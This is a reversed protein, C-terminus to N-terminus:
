SDVHQHRKKFRKGAYSAVWWQALGAAIILLTLPWTGQWAPTTFDFFDRAFGIGFSLSAILVVLLVYVLRAIRSLRTPVIDFLRPVLFVLYVGFLTAILVVATSVGSPDDPHIMRLFFYSLTVTLGTIIAIPAVAQLTDKWYHKPSVHRRPIPSVLTWMITPMTVLFINMFTIHRPEFPYVIGLTLTLGLLVVGYILKHYFLASIVEIAQIIRNGLRIGIPLSNFSNNMLVIDAVRRTASAGAFMAIGLDAKKIALADNVGDGVMGTYNGQARFTDIIREKQEPLVRAFITNDVIAQDWAEGDLEALEAGTIVKDAGSIGVREAVYRVTQPNDGSIVRISVNRSQLYKVTKEVGVRLENTLRIIGLARGSREPLDKIDHVPDFEAVLLVRNGDTTLQDIRAQQEPSLRALRELFEPAGMLLTHTRKGIRATVGSMKRESSFSLVDKVTYESISPNAAIIADGTANGKSTERAVIGILEHVHTDKADFLEVGEYVVTDSTLTGTKDVCLVQLLAMAEIAGLKQPLVKAQVLRLSGFALLLTSALLLGEPVITVAGATITKFITIWDLGVIVYVTVILAALVLAGYTLWNIAHNIARQLPTPRPTYRKLTATMLGVKTESGVAVVRASASGAMVVSAAYVRESARKEVAASEGTLMSEDLEIDSAKVIEADAPVEDGSQLMIEDGVHLESFLVREITGDDRIRRALPKNLLELKKLARAARVEQVVAFLTNVVIVFSIFFADRVEGLLLLIVSLTLIAIVITSVFNRRLIVLFDKM